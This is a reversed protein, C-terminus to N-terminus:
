PCASGVNENNDIEQQVIPFSIDDAGRPAHDPYLNLADGERWRRLYGQRQGSLWNGAARARALDALDGALPEDGFTVSAFAGLSLSPNVFLMPNLSQSPDTLLDNVMDEAAGPSGDRLLSEAEIMRAEWGSALPLPSSRETYLQQLAIDVGIEPADFGPVTDILGQAVWEDLYPWTENERPGDDGDGVTWRPQNFDGWTFDYVENYQDTTNGSYEAEFVFDSPVSAVRGAAQTHEGLWMLARAQGIRAATGADSLGADVAATEAEELRSLAQAMREDPSMPSGEGEPGGLISQCYAEALFIRIYGGYLLGLAIGERLEDTVESFEPDDLSARYLAVATDASSRAVHLPEYMDTTLTGNEPNVQVNRRDVDIRTEFTGSLIFEDTLLGTYIAYSDFAEQFDGIVGSTRLSVAGPGQLVEPTVNDPDNVDLLSGDGCAGLTVTLGLVGALLASSKSGRTRVLNSM